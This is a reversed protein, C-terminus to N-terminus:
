TDGCNNLQNKKYLKNGVTGFDKTKKQSVQMKGLISYDHKIYFWYKLIKCISHYFLEDNNSVGYELLIELGGM